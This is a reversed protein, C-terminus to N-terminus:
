ANRQEPKSISGKDKDCQLGIEILIFRPFPITEAHFLVRIRSKIVISREGMGNDEWDTDGQTGREGGGGRRNFVFRKVAQYTM